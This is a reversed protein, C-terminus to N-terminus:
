EINSHSEMIMIWSTKETTSLDNVTLKIVRNVVRRLDPNMKISFVSSQAVTGAESEPVGRPM